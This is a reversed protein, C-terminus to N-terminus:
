DQRNKRKTRAQVGGRKRRGGRKRSRKKTAACTFSSSLNRKPHRKKKLRKPKAVTNKIQKRRRGASGAFASNFGSGIYDPVSQTVGGTSILIKSM